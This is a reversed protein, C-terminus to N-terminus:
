KSCWQPLDGVLSIADEELQDQEFVFIWFQWPQVCVERDHWFMEALLRDPWKGPVPFAPFHLRCRAVDVLPFVVGGSSNLSKSWPKGLGVFRLVTASKSILLREDLDLDWIWTKSPDIPNETALGADVVRSYHLGKPPLTMLNERGTHRSDTTARDMCCAPVCLRKWACTGGISCQLAKLVIM